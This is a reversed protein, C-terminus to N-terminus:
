VDMGSTVTLLDLNRLQLFTQLDISESADTPRNSEDLDGSVTIPVARSARQVSHEPGAVANRPDLV